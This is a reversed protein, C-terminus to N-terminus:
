RTPSRACTSCGKSLRPRVRPRRRQGQALRQGETFENYGITAPHAAEEMAQEGRSAGRYRYAAAGAEGMGPGDLVMEMEVDMDTM